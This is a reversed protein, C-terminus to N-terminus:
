FIFSALMIINVAQNKMRESKYINYCLQSECPMIKNFLILIQAREQKKEKVALEKEKLICYEKILIICNSYIYNYDDDASFPHFIDINCCKCDLEKDKIYKKIYKNINNYINGPRPLVKNVLIYLKEM